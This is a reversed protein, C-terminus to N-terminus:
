VVIKTLYFNLLSSNQKSSVGWLRMRSLLHQSHPAEHGSGVRTQRSARPEATKRGVRLSVYPGLSGYNAGTRKTVSRRYPAMAEHCRM